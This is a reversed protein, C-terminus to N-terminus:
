IRACSRIFAVVYLGNDFDQLANSGKVVHVSPDSSRDPRQAVMSHPSQVAIQLSRKRTLACGVFSLAVM